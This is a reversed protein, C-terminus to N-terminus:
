DVRIYGRQALDILTTLIDQIEIREKLVVAM